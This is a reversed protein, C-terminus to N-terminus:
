WFYVASSYPPPLSEQACCLSMDNRTSYLTM